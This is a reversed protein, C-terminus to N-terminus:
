EVETTRKLRGTREIMYIAVEQQDDIEELDTHLAVSGNEQIVAYVKAPYDQLKKKSGKSM